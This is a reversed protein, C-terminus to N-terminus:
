CQQVICEFILLITFKINHKKAVIFFVDGHVQFVLEVLSALQVIKGWHPSMFWLM